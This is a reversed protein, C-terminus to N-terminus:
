EMEVSIPVINMRKLADLLEEDMAMSQLRRSLDNMEEDERREAEFDREMAAADTANLYAKAALFVDRPCRANQRLNGVRENKVKSHHPVKYTNDGFRILTEVMCALLSLFTHGLREYPYEDFARAVNAVLEDISRASSKHQLAQIAAFFGLDLVNM